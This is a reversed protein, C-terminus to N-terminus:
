QAPCERKDPWDKFIEQIAFRVDDEIQGPSQGDTIAQALGAFVVEPIETSDVPFGVPVFLSGVNYEVYTPCWYACPDWYWGWYGWWWGGCCDYVYGGNTEQALGNAAWLDPQREDSVEDAPIYDLCVPASTMAEIILLNVRRNFAEQEDGLDPVDPPPEVLDSTVVSFTEYTSFEDLYDPNTRTTIEGTRVVVDDQCSLVVLSTAMLVFLPCM